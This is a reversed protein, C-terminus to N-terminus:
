ERNEQCENSCELPRAVKSFLPPRTPTASQLPLAPPRGVPQQGGEGASTTTSGPAGGEDPDAFTLQLSCVDPTGTAGVSHAPLPPARRPFLAVLSPDVPSTAAPASRLSSPHSSLQQPQPPAPPPAPLLPPPIAGSGPVTAATDITILLDGIDVLRRRAAELSVQPSILTLLLSVDSRPVCVSRPDGGFKKRESGGDGVKSGGRGRM